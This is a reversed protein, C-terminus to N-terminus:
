RKTKPEISARIPRDPLDKFQEVLSLTPHKQM